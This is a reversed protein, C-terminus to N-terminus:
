RRAVQVGRLALAHELLLTVEDGDRVVPMALASEPEIGWARLAADARVRAVPALQRLTADPTLADVEVVDIDGEELLDHVAQMEVPGQAWARVLGRAERPVRLLLVERGMVPDRWCGPAGTPVRGEVEGDAPPPISTRSARGARPIDELAEWPLAAVMARVAPADAPRADPDKALLKEFLADFAHPVGPRVESALPPDEGLHQAVFDPGPFPLHGTVGQFLVCGFGYLDTAASLAGGTIQEPAMYPLSGVLGGTVTAGLDGLHAAGLDGLRAQGAPDFLVNSPKLDRHVVGNRHLTHLASLVRMAVARLERPPITAVREALTGGPMWDYVITPGQPDLARLRVLNPDDLSRAIEAERMFRGFAASRDDSVTLVKLAVTDGSLEDVAELVRGTAGSGVERVVRYRGAYREEAGEARPLYPDYDSPSAPLSPDHDRLRDVWWRAAQAYGLRHLGAVLACVADSSAEVRVAQQLARVAGADDGAKARLTALRAAAEADDPTQALHQELSRAAMAVDNARSFCEAARAYEGRAYWIGAAEHPSSPELVMAAVDDRRALRCQGALMAARGPDAGGDRALMALLQDDHSQLAVDMALRWEDGRVATVVADAGRGLFRLYAARRWQSRQFALSPPTSRAAASWRRSRPTM